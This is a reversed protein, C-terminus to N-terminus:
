INHTKYYGKPIRHKPEFKGGRLLHHLEKKKYEPTLYEDVWTADPHDKKYQKREVWRRQARKQCYAYWESHSLGSYDVVSVSYHFSDLYKMLETVTNFTKVFSYVQKRNFHGAKENNRLFKVEFM